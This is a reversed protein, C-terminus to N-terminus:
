FVWAVGAGLFVLNRRLDPGILMREYALDVDLRVRRVPIGVGGSARAALAGPFVVVGGAIRPSVPAGAWPEALGELRLGLPFLLVTGAGGWRGSTVSGTLGAALAPFLLGGDLRVGASWELPARSGAAGSTRPLAPDAAVLEALVPAVVDLVPEVSRPARIRRSVRSVAAADIPDVLALNLIVSDGMRSLTGTLLRRVDLAGGIETLCVSDDGCGLLQRSAEYGLVTSIDSMSIVDYARLRFLEAQIEDAVIAAEETEVGGRVDIGLFALRMRSADSGDAAVAPAAHILAVVVLLGAGVRGPARRCLAAGMLLLVAVPWASSAGSTSCAYRSDIEPPPEGGDGGGGGNGNGPDPDPEPELGDPPVYRLRWLDGLPGGGDRGGHLLIEGAGPDYTMAFGDRASPRTTGAMERWREGDFLWTDDRRGGGDGGFLVTVGAADHHVLGHRERAAPLTGPPEHRIWEGDEPLWEWLDQLNSSGRGGFLWTRGAAPDHALGASRRAEPHAELKPHAYWIGDWSFTEDTTENNVFGGFVLLRTGEDVVTAAHLHRPGPWTAAEPEPIRTWGAGDWVWLDDLEGMGVGYRGGFLVLGGREAMYHMVPNSRPFPADVGTPDASAVQIWASGDFEWTDGLVDLPDTSTRGGFLVLRGRVPDYAMAHAYRAPPGSAVSVQSWLLSALTQELSDSPGAPSGADPGGCGMAVLALALWWRM